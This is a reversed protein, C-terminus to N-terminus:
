FHNRRFLSFVSGKIESKGVVGYYRSDEGGDRVDTLIFYENNGLKVPYEVFGEYRPTPTTIRQEIVANGNIILKGEDTIEVTDGSVAVVRGVYTTENKELVVVQDAKYGKDLRYYMLLDGNDIRPTMDSTPMRLIGFVVGFMIWLLFCLLFAHFLFRRVARM